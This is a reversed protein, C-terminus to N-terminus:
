KEEESAPSALLSDLEVLKCGPKHQLKMRNYGDKDAEIRANCGDCIFNNMHRQVGVVTRAWRLAERLREVVPSPLSSAAAKRFHTATRTAFSAASEDSSEYHIIEFRWEQALEDYRDSM